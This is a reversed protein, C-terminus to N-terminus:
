IIYETGKKPAILKVNTSPAAKEVSYEANKVSMHVPFLTPIASLEAIKIAELITSHGYGGKGEMYGLTSDHILADAGSFLPVSEERCLTDGSIALSSGDASIFKYCRADVPHASAGCKIVAGDTKYEDNERIPIIKPRGVTPYFLDLQLYSYTLNVVREVDKEPGLITLDKINKVGSHIFHFLLTALGLYHDHHMHTFIIHDIKSLDCDTERLASIVNFGCDFLYRENVLFCPCDEGIDPISATTGLFKLKIM